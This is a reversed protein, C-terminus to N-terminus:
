KMVAKVQDLIKKANENDPSLTVAENLYESAKKFDADVNAKEKKYKDPDSTALPAIKGLEKAGTNFYLVGLSYLVNTKLKKDTIILAQEFADEAEKIKGAKQLTQGNKMCFGYVLKQINMNNPFKAIGEKATAILEPAKKMDYYAKTLGVYSSETNYDNKISQQFYKAADAYKDAKDACVACNFIVITDNAGSQTLYANFKDFALAYNKAELAEAGEKKLQAPDTSQAFANWVLLNAVLFLFLRKM